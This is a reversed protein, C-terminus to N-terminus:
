NSKSLRHVSCDQGVSSVHRSWLREIHLKGLFGLHLPTCSTSCYERKDVISETCAVLHRLIMLLTLFIKLRQSTSLGCIALHDAQTSSHPSRPNTIRYGKPNESTPSLQQKGFADLHYSLFPFPHLPSPPTSERMVQFLLRIIRKQRAVRVAKFRRWDSNSILNPQPQHAATPYREIDSGSPLQFRSLRTPVLFRSPPAKFTLVRCSQSVSKSIIDSTSCLNCSM